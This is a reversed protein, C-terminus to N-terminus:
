EIYLEITSDPINQFYSYYGLAYLDADVNRCYWEYASVEEFLLMEFLSVSLSVLAWSFKNVVWVDQAHPRFFM